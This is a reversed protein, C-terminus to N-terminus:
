SEQSDFGDPSVSLFRVGRTGGLKRIDRIDWLTSIYVPPGVPRVDFTSHIIHGNM